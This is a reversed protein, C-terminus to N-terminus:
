FSFGRHLLEGHANIGANPTLQTRQIGWNRQRDCHSTYGNPSLKEAARPLRLGVSPTGTGATRQTEMRPILDHGGSPYDDGTGGRDGDDVGATSWDIDM